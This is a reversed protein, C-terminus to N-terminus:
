AASYGAPPPYAFAVAGCNLTAVSNDSDNDTMYLPHWTGAPIGSVIANAGTVPDQGNPFVGNIGVFYKGEDANFCNCVVDGAEWSIPTGATAGSTGLLIGLGASVRLTNGGGNAGISTASEILGTCSDISPGDLDDITLEWYWKGSSRGITARVAETNTTTETAVLDGASLLIGATKNAPDWTTISGSGTDETYDPLESSGRVELRASVEWNGSALHVRRPSGIFRAVRTEYGNVGPLSVAFWLAGGFLTDEFWARWAIM